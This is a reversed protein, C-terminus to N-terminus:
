STRCAQRPDIHFQTCLFTWQRRAYNERKGFWGLIIDVAWVQAREVDDDEFLWKHQCEYERWAVERVYDQRLWTHHPEMLGRHRDYRRLQVVPKRAPLFLKCDPWYIMEDFILHNIDKTYLLFGDIFM